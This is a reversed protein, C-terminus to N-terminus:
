SSLGLASAAETLAALHKAVTGLGAGMTNVSV